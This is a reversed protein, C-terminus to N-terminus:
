SLSAAVEILGFCWGSMMALCLACLSLWPMVLAWYWWGSLGVGVFCLSGVLVGVRGAVSGVFDCTMMVPLLCLGAVRISIVQHDECLSEIARATPAIEELLVRGLPANTRKAGFLLTRCTMVCSGVITTTLILAIWVALLCNHVPWLFAQLVRANVVAGDDGLVDGLVLSLREVQSAGFIVGREPLSLLNGSELCLPEQKAWWGNETRTMQLRALYASKSESAAACLLPIAALGRPCLLVEPEGDHPTNQPTGPQQPTGPRQRQQQQQYAHSAEHSNTGGSQSSHSGAAGSRGASSSTDDRTGYVQLQRNGLPRENAHYTMTLVIARFSLSLSNTQKNPFKARISCTLGTHNESPLSCKCEDIYCAMAEAQDLGSKGRWAALKALETSTANPPNAPPADGSVSQKHLAYLELRDRNQKQWKCPALSLLFFVWNSSSFKRSPERALFM